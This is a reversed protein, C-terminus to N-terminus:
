LAVEARDVAIRRRGHAVGLRAEGRDSLLQQGVDVLVRDVERGVEVARQALRADQWGLQRVQEDVARDADRAAHRGVDRGVVQALADVRDLEQDCAVAGDAAGARGEGRDPGPAIAPGGVSSRRPLRSAITTVSSGYWTLLAVSISRIASRTRSLRSSPMESMRSSDSRWPM